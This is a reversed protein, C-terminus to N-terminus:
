DYAWRITEFWNILSVNKRTKFDFLDVVPLIFKPSLQEWGWPAFQQWINRSTDMSWAETAVAVVTDDHSGITMAVSAADCVTKNTWTDPFVGGDLLPEIISTAPPFHDPEGDTVKSAVTSPERLVIDRYAEDPCPFHHTIPSM